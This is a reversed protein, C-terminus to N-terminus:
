LVAKWLIKLVAGVATSMSVNWVTAEDSVVVPVEDFLIKEFFEQAERSAKQM